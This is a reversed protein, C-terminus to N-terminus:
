RTRLVATLHTRSSIAGHGVLRDLVGAIPQRGAGGHFVSADPHPIGGEMCTGASEAFGEATQEAEMAGM